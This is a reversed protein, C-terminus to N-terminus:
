NGHSQIQNREFSTLPSRLLLRCPPLRLFLRRACHGFTDYQVEDLYTANILRNWYDRFTTTETIPPDGGERVRNGPLNIYSRSLHALTPSARQGARSSYPYYSYNSQACGGTSAADVTFRLSKASGQRGQAPRPFSYVRSSAIEEEAAKIEARTAIGAPPNMPETEIGALPDFASMRDDPPQSALRASALPPPPQKTGDFATAVVVVGSTSAALTALV